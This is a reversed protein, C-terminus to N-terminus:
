GGRTLMSVHGMMPKWLVVILLVAGAALLMRKMTAGSGFGQENTGVTSGSWTM